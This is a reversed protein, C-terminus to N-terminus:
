IYYLIYIIISETFVMCSVPNFSKGIKIHTTKYDQYHRLLVIYKIM